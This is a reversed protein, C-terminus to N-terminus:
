NVVSSTSSNNRRIMWEAVLLNPIWSLWAVISYAVLFKLGIM